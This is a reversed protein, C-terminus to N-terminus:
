ISSGEYKWDKPAKNVEEQFENNYPVFTTTEGWSYLWGGAVKIITACEIRVEEHLEMNYIRQDTM